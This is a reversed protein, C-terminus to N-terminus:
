DGVNMLREIKRRRGRVLREFVYVREHDVREPRVSACGRHTSRRSTWSNSGLCDSFRHHWECVTRVEGRRVHDKVDLVFHGGPRLM